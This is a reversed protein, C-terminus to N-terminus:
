INEFYDGQKEKHKGPLQYCGDLLRKSDQEPAQWCMVLFEVLLFGYIESSVAREPPIEAGM